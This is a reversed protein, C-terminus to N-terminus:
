KWLRSQRASEPPSATRDRAAHGSAQRPVGDAWRYVRAYNEVGALVLRPQGFNSLELIDACGEFDIAAQQTGAPPQGAVAALSDYRDWSLRVREELSQEVAGKLENRAPGPLGIVRYFESACGSGYSFVGISRETDHDSNALSSTLALLVSGAYINGVQQGYRVSPEARARFDQEIEAASLSTLKRLLARHAGRVMGAFPTHMALLDFSTVFDASPQKRCYDAFAGEFCKLYTLLSLDTEVVERTFQPRCSDMVEYSHLGSVPEIVALVPNRSVLVAVSGVGQSPEYYSGQVPHPIDANIVLARTEPRVAATVVAVACQLAATAAYCAQKVEFVRCSRPLDLERHVLNSLSKSLDLGSETGIALFEINARAEPDLADLIPKAANVANTVPDECPLAVSKSKMM